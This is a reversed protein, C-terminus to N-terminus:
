NMAMPDPAAPSPAPTSGDTQFLSVTFASTAPTPPLERGDLVDLNLTVATSTTATVSLQTRDSLGVSDTVTLVVTYAGAATYTHTPNQATSSEGNGFDWFWNTITHTGQSSTDSFTFRIPNGREGRYAVRHLLSRTTNWQRFPLTRTPLLKGGRLRRQLLYLLPSRRPRAPSGSCRRITGVLGRWRRPYSDHHGLRRRSTCKCRLTHLPPNRLSYSVM